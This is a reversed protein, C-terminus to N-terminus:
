RREQQFEWLPIDPGDAENTLEAFWTGTHATPAAGGGIENTGCVRFVLLTHLRGDALRLPTAIPHDIYWGAGADPEGLRRPGDLVTVPDLLRTRSADLPWCALTRRTLRFPCEPGPYPNGAIFPNGGATRNLVVPSVARANNARITQSWSQGGDASRWVQIRNLLTTDLGSMAARDVGDPGWPRACFLLQGDPERLLSPEFSTDFDTVPHFSAPQWGDPGRRWRSVGAGHLAGPPGAALGLLLDAGDAIAPAIPRNAALWGPFLGDRGTRRTPGISFRRGDFSLQVLDFLWLRNPSGQPYRDADNAPFGIAHGLAFGTGAHPHPSGDPQRAGLPVFGIAPPFKVLVLPEGTAPHVSTENRDLAQASEASIGDLSDFVILDSGAEFDIVKSGVARMNAMLAGQNPSVQFPAALGYVAHGSLEPATPSRLLPGMLRANMTHDRMGHDTGPEHEARAPYLRPRAPELLGDRRDLWAGPCASPVASM